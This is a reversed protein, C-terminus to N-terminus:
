RADGDHGKLATLEIELVWIVSCVHRAAFALLRHLPGRSIRRYGRLKYWYHIQDIRFRATSYYPRERCHRRSPDFYDFSYQSFAAKHTPDTASDLSNWYPVRITLQAGPTSIRHLEEMTGVTDSLHELIHFMRIATFAASEFPWPFTSLDHVIDVGPLFVRDHNIWGELIENGCGLHLKAM